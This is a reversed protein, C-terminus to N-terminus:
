LGIAEMVKKGTKFMLQGIDQFSTQLDCEIPWRNDAYNPILAYYSAKSDDTIWSGDPRRFQEKGIEYGLVEGAERNPSYTQKISAPLTSFERAREIFRRAREQYGPVSKIGVIGKELLATRLLDLATPDGKDFDDYATVDLELIEINASSPNESAFGNGILTAALAIAM